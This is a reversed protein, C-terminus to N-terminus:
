PGRKVKVKCILKLPVTHLPAWVACACKTKEKANYGSKRVNGLIVYFYFYFNASHYFIIEGM